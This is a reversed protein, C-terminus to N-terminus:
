PLVRGLFALQQRWCDRSVRRWVLAHFAHLEGPYIHMESEVGLQQLATHLRRTDDILPDKTGVLSFFPPLPRDPVLGRELHVVPDAFVLEEPGLPRRPLYGHAVETVRDAIWPRMHPYRRLLREPESVQLVGCAAITAALRVGGDFLRRAFPEERRYATALALSTVLNGGASEGAAVLTRADAGYRHANEHVWLAADCTDEIAAPYRHEPALRYNICFVVYGARAFSLAMMWHTDKSLMRFAGGHVYLLAPRGAPPAPPLGAGARPRWVDLLHHRAGTRTYPVDSIREVDHYAPNAAPHLRGARSMGNLAASFVVGGLNRRARRLARTPM